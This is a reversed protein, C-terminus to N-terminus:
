LIGSRAILAVAGAVVFILLAGGFVMQIILGLNLITSAILGAALVGLGGTGIIGALKLSSM